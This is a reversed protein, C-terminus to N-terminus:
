TSADDAGHDPAAGAVKVLKQASFYPAAQKALVLHYISASIPFISLAWCGQDQM